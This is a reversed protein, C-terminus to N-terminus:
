GGKGPKKPVKGGTNSVPPSQTRRARKKTEQLVEGLSPDPATAASRKGAAAGSGASKAKIDQILDSTLGTLGTAYAHLERAALKPAEKAKELLGTMMRVGELTDSLWEGMAKGTSMGSVAALRQFAKLVDPDVPVTVRM